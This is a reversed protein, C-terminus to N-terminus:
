MEELFTILVATPSYNIIAVAAVAAVLKHFPDLDPGPCLVSFPRVATCLPRSKGTATPVLIITLRAPSTTFLSYEEV